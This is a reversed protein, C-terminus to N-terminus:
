EQNKKYNALQKKVSEEQKSLNIFDMIKLLSTETLLVEQDVQYHNIGYFKEGNSQYVNLSLKSNIQISSVLEMESASQNVSQENQNM